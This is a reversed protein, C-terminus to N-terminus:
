NVIHLVTFCMNQKFSTDSKPHNGTGDVILQPYLTNHLLPVKSFTRNYAYYLGLSLFTADTRCSLSSTILWLKILWSIICYAVCDTICCALSSSFQDSGTVVVVVHSKRCRDLDVQTLRVPGEDVMRWYAGIWLALLGRECRESLQVM